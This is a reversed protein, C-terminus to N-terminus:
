TVAVAARGPIEPFLLGKFNQQKFFFFFAGNEIKLAKLCLFAAANM